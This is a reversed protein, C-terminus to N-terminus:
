AQKKGLAEAENLQETIRSMDPIRAVSPQEFRRNAERFAKRTYYAALKSPTRSLSQIIAAEPDISEEEAGTSPSSDQQPPLNFLPGGLGITGLRDLLIERERKLDSVQLTLQKVINEHCFM